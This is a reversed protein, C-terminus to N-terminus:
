RNNSENGEIESGPAEIEHQPIPWVFLPDDASVKMDNGEEQSYSNPTREFGWGWRKLDNLRFGEMYLEKVREDSITQLGTEGSGVFVSGAGRSQSLTTLDQSALGTDGKWYYAEARILYQEALRLPKPMSVHYLQYTSTFNRNGYYKVVLPVPIEYSYGNPIGTISEDAFYAQYRIDSNPNYLNIVWEAPVYDPYFYTLDRTYNLFVTGLAGGYLTPTFGIRWIIETGSDYYWLGDFAYTGLTSNVGTGSLAFADNDIVYTSYKVANDWDRMYLAVRARIAYVAGLSIYYNDYVDSENVTPDDDGDELYEEAKDLDKLVQQYSDYLSARRVPEPETYLTRLVVGKMTKATEDDRGNEGPYAECFCKILESYCLARIAYAEGTYTDLLDIQDEDTLSARVEEVKELYFNCNGIVAYLSGYVAEISSDTPRIDWDWIGDYPNSNTLSAMVLDSQIDPLLTLNGSYLSGSKLSSYIGIIHQEADAFTKMADDEPIYSGPYKELCSTATGAIFASVAAIKIINLIKKMM